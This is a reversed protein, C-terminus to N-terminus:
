PRRRRGRERLRAWGGHALRYGGLVVAYAVVPCAATVALGTLRLALGVGLLAAAALAVLMGAWLWWRRQARTRRGTAEAFLRTLDPYETTLRREIEALQRMEANTM